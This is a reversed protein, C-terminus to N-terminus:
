SLGLVKGIEAALHEETFAGEIVAGDLEALAEGIETEVPSFFGNSKTAVVFRRQGDLRRIDGLHHMQRGTEYDVMVVRNNPSVRIYPSPNAATRTGGGVHIILGSPEPEKRPARSSSYQGASLHDAIKRITGRNREILRKAEVDERRPGDRKSIIDVM